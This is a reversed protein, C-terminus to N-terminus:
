QIMCSSAVMGGAVVADKGSHRPVSQRREFEACHTTLYQLVKIHGHRRALTFALQTCGERRHRHLFRVVSLHGTAAAVDMASASCRGLDHKHLFALVVVDGLRAAADMAYLETVPLRPVMYGDPYHRLCLQALSSRGDALLRFLVFCRLVSHNEADIHAYASKTLQRRYKKFATALEKPSGHQFQTM